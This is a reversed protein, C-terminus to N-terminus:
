PTPLSRFYLVSGDAQACGPPVVFVDVRDTRTGPLVVVLAPAGEFTAYDLALPLGPDDPDSLSALCRALGDTTRLPALPDGALAAEPRSALTKPANSDQAAGGTGAAPRLEEAGGRLLAPLGQTLAAGTRDYDTGSSSIAYTSTDDAAPSGGDPRTVLLGGTVLAAAAAVGALAPLWRTRRPALPLVDGGAAPAPARVAALLRAELGAPVPPDPLAALAEVVPGLGSQLEALRGRCGACGALHARDEEGLEGALADALLDLGLHADDTSM